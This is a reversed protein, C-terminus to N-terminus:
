SPEIPDSRSPELGSCQTYPEADVLHPAIGRVAEAIARIHTPRVAVAAWLEAM